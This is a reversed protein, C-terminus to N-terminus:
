KGPGPNSKDAGGHIGSELEPPFDTKRSWKIIKTLNAVGVKSQLVKEAPKGSFGFDRGSVATSGNGEILINPL